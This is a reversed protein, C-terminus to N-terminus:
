ISWARKDLERCEQFRSDLKMKGILKHLCRFKRLQAYGASKGLRTDIEGLKCKELYYWSLIQRDTVEMNQLYSQVMQECERKQILLLVEPDHIEGIDLNELPLESRKGMKKRIINFAIGYLFSSFKARLEFTPSKVKRYAISLVEQFIDKAEEESTGWKRALSLIGDRGSEFNQYLQHIIASEHKRLGRVYKNEKM